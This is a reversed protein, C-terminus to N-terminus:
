KKIINYKIKLWSNFKIHYEITSSVVIIMGLLILIIMITFNYPNVLKSFMLFELIFACIVFTFIGIMVCIHMADGAVKGNGKSKFEDELIKSEEKSLDYWSIYKDKKSLDNKNLLRGLM